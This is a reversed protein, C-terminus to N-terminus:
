LHIGIIKDFWHWGTSIKLNEDINYWIKPDFLFLINWIFLFMALLIFILIFTYLPNKKYEIYTFISFFFLSIRTVYKLLHWFDRYGNAALHTRYFIISDHICDALLYILGCFLIILVNKRDM